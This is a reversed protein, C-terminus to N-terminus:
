PLAVTLLDIANDRQVLVVASQDNLKDLQVVGKLSEITEFKQGATGGGTSGPSRWLVHSM